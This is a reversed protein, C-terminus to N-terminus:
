MDNCSSGLILLASMGSCICGNMEPFTCLLITKFRHCYSIYSVPQIALHLGFTIQHFHLDIVCHKASLWAIFCFVKVDSCYSIYVDSVMSYLLIHVHIHSLAHKRELKACRQELTHSRTRDEEWAKMETHHAQVMENLEKDRDRLEGILLQLETRQKIITDREM